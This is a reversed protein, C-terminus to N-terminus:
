NVASPHTSTPDVYAHLTRFSNCLRVVLSLAVVAAVFYWYMRAIKMNTLQFMGSGGTDMGGMGAMDSMDMSAPVSLQLGSSPASCHKSVVSSRDSSQLALVISLLSLRGYNQNGTSQTLVDFVELLSKVRVGLVKM